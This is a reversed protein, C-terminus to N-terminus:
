VKNKLNVNVREKASHRLQNFVPWLVPSFKEPEEKRHFFIRGTLLYNFTWSARISSIVLSWELWDPLNELYMSSSRTDYHVESTNQFIVRMCQPHGPLTTILSEFASPEIWSMHWYFILSYLGLLNLSLLWFISYFTINIKTYYKLILITTKENLIKWQKYMHRKFLDQDQKVHLRKKQLLLMENMGSPPTGWSHCESQRLGPHPVLTQLHCRLRPHFRPLSMRNCWRWNQPCGRRSGRRYAKGTQRTYRFQIRPHSCSQNRSVELSPMCQTCPKYQRSSDVLKSLLSM